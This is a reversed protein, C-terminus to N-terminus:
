KREKNVLLAYALWRWPGSPMNYSFSVGHEASEIQFHFGVKLSKLSLEQGAGGGQARSRNPLVVEAADLTTAVALTKEGGCPKPHGTM